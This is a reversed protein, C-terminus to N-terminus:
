SSHNFVPIHHVWVGLERERCFRCVVSYEPETGSGGYGVKDSNMDAARKFTREPPQPLEASQGTFSERSMRADDSFTVRRLQETKLVRRDLPGASLGLEHAPAMSRPPRFRCVGTGYGFRAMM